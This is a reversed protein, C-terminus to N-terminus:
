VEDETEPQVVASVGEYVEKELEHEAMEERAPPVFVEEEERSWIVYNLM